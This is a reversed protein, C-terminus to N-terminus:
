PSFISLGSLFAPLKPIRIHPRLVPINSLGKNFLSYIASTICLLLVPAPMRFSDFSLAQGIGAPPALISRDSPGRVMTERDSLLCRIPLIGM